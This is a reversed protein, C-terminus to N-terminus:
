IKMFHSLILSFLILNVRKSIFIIYVYLLICKYLITIHEDKLVVDIDYKHSNESM